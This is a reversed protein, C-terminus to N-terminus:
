STKVEYRIWGSHITGPELTILHAIDNKGQAALNHADTSCTQPEVCVFKEKEKTYVVCHTFDKSFTTILEIGNTFQIRQPGNLGTFVDDLELQDIPTPQNLTAALLKGTPLLESDAEMVFQAPVCLTLVNQFFPHIAFGFGMPRTDLNEVQYTVLLEHGTLKYILSLRSRWPFEHWYRFSPTIDLWTRLTNETKESEWIEDRVLGHILPYNGRPVKVKELSYHENQFRYMRDRVRNPFPWLVFNGTFDHNKLLQPDCYLLEQDGVSFSVMNSGLEPAVTVTLTGSQLTIM